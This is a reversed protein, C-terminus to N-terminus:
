FMEALWVSNNVTTTQNIFGQARCIIILRESPCASKV